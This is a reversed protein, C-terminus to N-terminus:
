CWVLLGQSVLEEVAAQVLRDADPHDGASEVVAAVIESLPRPLDAALWAASGIGQLVLLNSGQLVLVDEATAIAGNHETRCVGSGKPPSVSEWREFEIEAPGTALVQRVAEPLQDADGYTIRHVGGCNVVLEALRVLASPVHPLASMEPVLAIIGEFLGLGEITPKLVDPRRELVAVGGLRLEARCHRLGLEDPGFEVKGGGDRPIMAIPKPFPVVSGDLRVAVTEDTVYGFEERCITRAATSKGTGSPGVLAAVTGEDDCVGAAHFMLWEGARAQISQITAASTWQYPTRSELRRGVVGARLCRSWRDSLSRVPLEWLEGLIEVVRPSM